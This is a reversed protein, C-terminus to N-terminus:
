TSTLKRGVQWCKTLVAISGRLTWPLNWCLPFGGLEHVQEPCSQTLDQSDSNCGLFKSQSKSCIFLM